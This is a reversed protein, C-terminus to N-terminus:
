KVDGYQLEIRVIFHHDEESTPVAGSVMVSLRIADFIVPPARHGHEDRMFHFMPVFMADQLFPFISNPMASKMQRHPKRGTLVTAKIVARRLKHRLDDVRKRRGAAEDDDDDNGDANNNHNDDDDNSGRHFLRALLPSEKDHVHESASGIKDQARILKAKVGDPGIAPGGSAEKITYSHALATTSTNSGTYYQLASGTSSVGTDARDRSGNREGGANIDTSRAQRRPYNDDS